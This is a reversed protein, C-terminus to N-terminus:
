EAPCTPFVISSGIGGAVTLAVGIITRAWEKRSTRDHEWLKWGDKVAEMGLEALGGVLMAGFIAILLWNPDNCM